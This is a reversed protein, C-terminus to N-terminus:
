IAQAQLVGVQQPVSDDVDVVVVRESGSVVKICFQYQGGSLVSSEFTYFRQGIYDITEIANNYDIVGSGNDDYVEFGGCVQEQGAPCYYWVLVVRPGAVQQVKVDFIGNCGNAVLDSNGDFVVKVSANLSREEEGCCNVRRLVYYYVTNAIHIVQQPSIFDEDADSVALVTEFDVTDISAGWYLNQCGAVRIWFDGGGLGMCLKVGGVSDGGFLSDFFKVEM